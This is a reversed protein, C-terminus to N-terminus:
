PPPPAFKPESNTNASESTFLSELTRFPHFLPKYFLKPIHMPEPKPDGLTGTMKYELLKTVPWLTLNLIPGLLMTDRLPEARVRANVKGAFDVTGEYQLRTSGARMELNDSFVVGNTIIFGAAGQSVRTRGLGPVVSDLPKSLVGFIPIEWILGDHLDAGGRGNWSFFDNANANTVVLFGNLRGELQNTRTAVDAMVAKLDMNTVGLAFQFPTGVRAGLNFSADGAGTGGYAELQVETLTLWDGEWHARGKLVPIHFVAWTFSRGDVEFMLDADSNGNLPAFGNVIVHPPEHFNYPELASTTKPGIWRTVVLPEFTSDANTFYIRRANLDAVVATARFRLDGRDARPQLFEVVRNTYRLDSEVGSVEQERYSVKAIAVHGTCGISEPERWRGWFGGDIRPPASLQFQDLARQAGDPLLPRFADLSVDSHFGFWYEHTRDDAIHALELRSDGLLAVLDPLRWVQNTYSVHASVSDARVGLYGCNTASFVAALQLSSSFAEEWGAPRNTWGPLVVAGSGNVRPPSAWSYKALWKVAAPPLAPTLKHPDVDSELQFGAARSTVDLEATAALRGEPFRVLLNTIQLQPASWRGSCLVEEADLLDSDCRSAAVSWSLDYPFIMRWGAVTAESAPANSRTSLTTTVALNTAGVWRTSVSAAHLRGLGSIPIANTLSHEWSAQFDVNTAVAWRTNVSAARADLVADVLNTDSLVSVVRLEFTPRLLDAWPTLVSRAHLQVEAQPREVPAAPRLRATLVGDAIHGWPTESDPASIALRMAFSELDRADGSLTARIEPPRSCHIEALLDAFKRLRKPVSRGSVKSGPKVPGARFVPWSQVASANTIVGSLHFEAGAFSAQFDELSWADGPLLRLDARIKELALVREPENTATVPLLFRGDRLGVSRIEFRRAWLLPYDLNLEAEKATFRAGTEDGQRGFKVGRAVIGRYFNWQLTEVELHLGRDRLQTLVLDRLFSPLGVINLYLIAGVLLFVLFLLTIRCRRFYCRWRAEPRRPGFFGM